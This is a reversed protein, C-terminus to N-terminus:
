SVCKIFDEYNRIYDSEDYLESAIVMLVCDESFDHMERWMFSDILLGETPDHLLYEQREKGNDLVFKCSGSIAVAVQKLRKHAHLGRTISSKTQFLYYIRQIKFPINKEAELSILEGREDGLSKFKIINILSM